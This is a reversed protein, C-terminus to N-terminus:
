KTETKNQFLTKSHLGTYGPVQFGRAEAESVCPTWTPVAMGQSGAEQWFSSLQVEALSSEEVPNKLWSLKCSCWLVGQDASATFPSGTKFVLLVRGLALSLPLHLEYFIGNFWKQEILGMHKKGPPKRLPSLTCVRDWALPRKRGLFAEPGSGELRCKRTGLLEWSQSSSVHNVLRGVLPGDWIPGLSGSRM